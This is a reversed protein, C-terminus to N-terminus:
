VTYTLKVELLLIPAGSPLIMFHILRQQALSASSPRQLKIVNEPEQFGMVELLKHLHSGQAPIDYTPYVAEPYYAMGTMSRRIIIHRDERNFQDQLIQLGLHNASALKFSTEDIDLVSVPYNRDELAEEPRANVYLVQFYSKSNGDDVEVPSLWVNQSDLDLPGGYFHTVGREEKMILRKLIETYTPPITLAASSLRSSILSDYVQEKPVVRNVENSM